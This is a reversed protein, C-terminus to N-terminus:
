LDSSIQTVNSHCVPKDADECEPEDADKDEDKDEDDADADEDAKAEKILHALEDFDEDKIAKLIADADSDEGLERLKAALARADALMAARKAAKIAAKRDKMAAKKAAEVFEKVAKADNIDPTKDSISGCAVCGSLLKMQLTTLQM